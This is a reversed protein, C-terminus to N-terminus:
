IYPRIQEECWEWFEFGVGTGGEEKTKTSEVLDQRIPQFRGFPIIWAGSKEITVNPSLGAFLETYAGNIAPYNIFWKLILRALFGQHRALDSQLNGPNVATSIIGKAKYRKALEAAQLYNGAKSVGYKYVQSQEIHYDLNDMPVGGRPSAIETTSSGVWVVRVTNAPELAATSLLAPTLLKTFMFTGINNVALQLEYGQASRSGKPPTMIGANNFLVHLKSEKMLFGEASAKITTLDSLDLHLFILQGKSSQFQKKISDIAKDAKEKSRAAVYVKANKSYLIQALEKGVGTNAGTVIYVKEHLDPLDNQTFGPKPPFFQTWINALPPRPMGAM